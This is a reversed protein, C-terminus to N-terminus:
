LFIFISINFLTKGNLGRIENAIDKYEWSPIKSLAKFMEYAWFINKLGEYKISSNKKPHSIWSM